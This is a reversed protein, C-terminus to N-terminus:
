SFTRFLKAVRRSFRPAWGAIARIPATAQWSTSAEIARLRELEGEQINSREWLGQVYWRDGLMAYRRRLTNQRITDSSCLDIIAPPCDRGVALLGLGHSHDFHFSPWRSAVEEWFRWVGFDLMREATDHFIIVGRESVKPLWTEFDHRVAEYTHYGDIHLLDISGDAFESSAEDFTSRHITSIEAYHSDHFSRFDEFVEDGWRGAHDDGRWTDVCHCDCDIGESLVAQCLAAYSVGAFTGLEVIVRPQCARVLWYAFPVHGWWASQTGLRDPLRFIPELLPHALLDLDHVPTGTGFRGSSVKAREVSPEDRKSLMMEAEELARAVPEMEITSEIKWPQLGSTDGDPLIRTKKSPCVVLHYDLGMATTVNLLWREATPYDGWYGVWDAPMLDVVAAGKQAFILNALASGHAGVIIRAETFASVQDAFPMNGPEVIEFGKARLAKQITGENTLNRNSYTTQNARSLYIKRSASSGKRQFRDRLLSCLAASPYFTTLAQLSSLVVVEKFRMAPATARYIARSPIGLESIIKFIWKPPYSSVLLQLRGERLPALLHNLIVLVDFVFHGYAGAAGHFCHLVPASFVPLDSSDMQGVQTELNPEIALGVTATETIYQGSDTVCTGFRLDIAINSLRAGIVPESTYGRDTVIERLRAVKDTVCHSGNISLESQRETRVGPALIAHGIKNGFFLEDPTLQLPAARVLNVYEPRQKVM